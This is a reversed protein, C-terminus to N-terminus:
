NFQQYIDFRITKGKYQFHPKLQALYDSQLPRKVVVRQTAKKLALEFLTEIEINKTVHQLVQIEKKNKAQNHSNPFMPDLYIAQFSTKSLTLLDFANSHQLELNLSNTKLYNNLSFQVLFYLLASQETATVQFNNNALIFSDRCWGATADLIHRIPKKKDKFAKLLHQNQAQARREFNNNNFSHQFSLQQPSIFTIEGEKFCLYSDESPSSLIPISLLQSCAKAADILQDDSCIIQLPQM